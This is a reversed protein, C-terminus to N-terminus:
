SHYTLDDIDASGSLMRRRHVFLFGFGVAVIGIVIASIKKNKVRM